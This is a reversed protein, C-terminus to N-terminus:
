CVLGNGVMSAFFSKDEGLVAEDTIHATYLREFMTGVVTTGFSIPFLFRLAVILWIYYQWRRSFKNKCLMKFGLILLLLLTGSVSLSLLIKMIENM